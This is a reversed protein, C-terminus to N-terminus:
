KAEIVVTRLCGICSPYTSAEGKVRTGCVSDCRVCLFEESTEGVLPVLHPPTTVTVARYGTSEEPLAPAQRRQPLLGSIAQALGKSIEYISLGLDPGLGASDFYLRPRGFLKKRLELVQIDGLLYSCAKGSAVGVEVYRYETVAIWVRPDSDVTKLTASNTDTAAGFALVEEGAYLTRDIIQRAQAADMSPGRQDAGASCPMAAQSEPLTNGAQRHYEVIAIHVESLAQAESAFGERLLAARSEFMVEAFQVTYGDDGDSKALAALRQFTLMFSILLESLDPHKTLSLRTAVRQVQQVSDEPFLEGNPYQRPLLRAAEAAWSDIASRAEALQARAEWRAARAAKYSYIKWGLWMLGYYAASQVALVGALEWPGAFAAVVAGVASAAYVGTSSVSVFRPFMYAIGAYIASVSIASGLVSAGRGAATAILIALFVGFALAAWRWAGSTWRHSFGLWHWM